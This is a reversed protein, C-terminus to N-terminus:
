ERIESEVGMILPLDPALEPRMEIVIGRRLPMDSWRARTLDIVERALQNLDVPTSMLQPERQRYFERMRAVTAAVDDISRAITELYNRSVPGLSPETELLLETYLAVPSIANNIDHAIGSAMQGLARLREQQVVVQQTQNLDDYALQLAGQLEAQHSALAVHESLQRLFEREGSSFSDANRRAAVLVGFVQGEVQLPAVVLSRLGGKALQQCFPFPVGAVDPEYVLQGRVCQAFASEGIAVPARETIGLTEALAHSGAGVSAVNLVNSAKDFLFVCSFDVPLHDELTGVVVQFISKLDQREGIARTIQHLLNLRGLQAQLDRATRELEVTREKVRYDLADRETQLATAQQEIRDAMADFSTGLQGLEDARGKGIRTSLQGAALSETAIALRRVPSFIIAACVAGAALALVIIAVAFLEKQQTMQGIQATLFEEPIMYFVTWPVMAFRRAVGYSWSQSAPAFGRFMGEDPVLSISREFHEPFPRVDNLLVKTKEGFRHAIVLSDVLAPPLQGAPHFVLGQDYTHAIRIGRQDFLVAFSGPGALANSLKAADWFASARVWLAALGVLTHDDGFIPTIYAVTAADQASIYLDSIIAVGRLARRPADRQSLDNGILARETANIIIGSANIIAAGRISPDSAPYAELIGSVQTALRDGAKSGAKCYEIVAPFRTIRDVSRQYGRHVADLEDRLQDGRAALLAATSALLRQQADRRDVYAEIGLPLASAVVLLAAM